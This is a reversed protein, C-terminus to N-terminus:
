DHRQWIGGVCHETVCARDAGFVFAALINEATAGLLSLGTMDVAFFDAAQGPVIRGAPLGLAAAGSVTSARLLGAASAVAGADIATPTGDARPELALWRWEENMSIRVNSATGIAVEGGARRFAAWDARPWGVRTESLPCVCLRAGAKAAATLEEQPAGTAHVLTTQPGLLGREQLIALPAAGHVRRARQESERGGLVVHFPLDHLRAFGALRTLDELAVAALDGIGVGVRTMKGDVRGRLNDLHRCFREVGTSRGRQAAPGADGADARYGCLLVLRIGADAAAALVLEDYAYDEDDGGHHLDHFEGVSTIGHHLMEEYAMRTFNRFSDPGLCDVLVDVAHNWAAEPSPEPRAAYFGRLGRQYGRSHANVLGPLLARNELRLTPQLDLFGVQEVTGQPGVVIQINPEFGDDLWTLEAEIITERKMAM